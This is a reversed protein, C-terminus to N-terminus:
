KTMQSYHGVKANKGTVFAAGVTLTQKVRTDMLVTKRKRKAHVPKILTKKVQAMNMHAMTRQAMNMHAMNRQATNMHAMNRQAMNMQAMNMQAMNMYTMNKHARM